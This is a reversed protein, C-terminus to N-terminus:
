NGVLYDAIISHVIREIPARDDTFIIPDPAPQPIRAQAARLALEQFEPTMAEPLDALNASVNELTMPQMTAVVLSNALTDPPGPEDIVFVSPFVTSLTSVLAEVLAFNTETRGVNITVVGDESLHEHVLQFFEVTTLHFPIYPPRYADIAVVDWTADSPQQSLWRRGDAAIADLNPQNMDFFERGVEIIQPDLEIGTIPLPGYIDTYLESVTGAALGIILLDDPAHKESWTPQFLPALLFYDWIGRSLLMDPHHVSHIGIGDNLKLHHENGWQRVSIYNFASEDEYLIPGTQSDSWLGLVGQSPRSLVAVLLVAAFAVLPVWRHSQRLAGLSIVILLTLALIFFTWRTGVAPILWLAPLFAGLISGATATASFRGATQGTSQLDHLSLRIAWPTATGLLIGPISFLILIAFLSGALLGLSFGALGRSAWGLVTGSFLPVLAVGIAALTLTIDLERQRPFRDALRGGFWAGVALYLLILGILASWIIQNNGFAPELLRSASLEMGLTVLGSTFVLISLYRMSLITICLSRYLSPEHISPHTGSKQLAREVLINLSIFRSCELTRTFLSLGM